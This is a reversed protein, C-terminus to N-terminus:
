PGGKWGRGYGTEAQLFPNGYRLMYSIPRPLPSSEHWDISVKPYKESYQSRDNQEPFWATVRYHCMSAYTMRRVVRIPM